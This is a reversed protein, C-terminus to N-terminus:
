LTREKVIDNKLGNEGIKENTNGVAKDCPFQQNFVQTRFTQKTIEM